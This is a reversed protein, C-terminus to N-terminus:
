EVPRGSSEADTSEGIGCSMGGVGIPIDRITVTTTEGAIVDAQVACTREIPGAPIM